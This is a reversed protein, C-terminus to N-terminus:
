SSLLIPNSSTIYLNTSFTQEYLTFHSGSRLSHMISIAKISNFCENVKESFFVIINDSSNKSAYLERFVLFLSLDMVTARFSIFLIFISLNHSRCCISCNETPSSNEILARQNSPSNSCFTSFAFIHKSSHLSWKLDSVSHMLNGLQSASLSILM